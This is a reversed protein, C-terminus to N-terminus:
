EKLFRKGPLFQMVFTDPNTVLYLIEFDEPHAEIVPTLYRVTTNSWYFTDFILHTVRNEEFRRYVKDDDSTRPIGVTRRNSWLYALYPKRCAIVAEPPTNQKIWRACERYNQWDSFYLTQPNHYNSHLYILVVFYLGTLLFFVANPRRLLKIRHSFSRLAWLFYYLILPIIGFIFRESAWVEPWFFIVGLTGLFYWGKLDWRKWFNLVFGSLITYSFLLGLLEFPLPYLVQWRKFIPLLTEPFFTLLYESLNKPFRWLFLEKLSINGLDPSYPNRMMLQQLYNSGGHILLWIQWPTLLLLSCLLGIGAWRYRRHVLLYIIVAPFLVVGVSRLYYAMGFSGLGLLFYGLQPHREWKRFWVFGLAVATLFPTESLILSNYEHIKLNLTISLLFPFFLTVPEDEFWRYLLWMGVLSILFIVIKYGLPHLTFVPYFAALLLPFGIPYKRHFPQHPSNIERYGEGTALAKALVVFQANDGITSLQTQFHAVGLLLYLGLLVLMLPFRHLGIWKEWNNAFPLNTRRATKNQASQSKKGKM